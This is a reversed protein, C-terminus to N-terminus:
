AHCAAAAGGLQLTMYWPIILANAILSTCSFTCVPRIHGVAPAKEVM